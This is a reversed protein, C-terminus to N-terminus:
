GGPWWITMSSTSPNSWSAWAASRPLAYYRATTRNWCARCMFIEHKRAAAFISSTPATPIPTSCFLALQWIRSAAPRAMLTSTVLHRPLSAGRPQWAVDINNDILDHYRNARPRRATRSRRTRQMMSGPVRCLDRPAANTGAHFKGLYRAEQRGIM